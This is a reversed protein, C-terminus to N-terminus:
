ATAIVDAEAHAAEMVKDNWVVKLEMDEDLGLAARCLSKTVQGIGPTPTDYDLLNRLANVPRKGSAIYLQEARELGINPLAALFMIGPGAIKSAKVPPVLSIEKRSRSALRIVAAEFDFDGNAYTVFVGHEQVSLLAGQVANWNWGTVRSDAIVNGDNDREFQGTIMVYAWPSLKKLRTLQTLLRGDKVSQLFDSPTKRELVLLAGDECIVHVDGASLEQAMVPCKGGFTLQKVWQPERTDIVVAQITM